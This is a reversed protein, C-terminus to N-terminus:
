FVKYLKYGHFVVGTLCIPHIVLFCMLALLMFTGHFLIALGKPWHSRMTLGTPLALALKNYRNLLKNYKNVYKTPAKDDDEAEQLDYLDWVYNNLDNVDDELKSVAQYTKDSEDFIATYPDRDGRARQELENVLDDLHQLNDYLEGVTM